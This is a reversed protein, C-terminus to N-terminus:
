SNPLTAGRRKDIAATLRAHNGKGPEGAVNCLAATAAPVTAQSDENVLEVMFNLLFKISIGGSRVV